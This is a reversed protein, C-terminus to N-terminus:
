TAIGLTHPTEVRRSESQRTLSNTPAQIRCLYLSLTLTHTRANVANDVHIIVCKNKIQQHLLHVNSNRDNRRRRRRNWHNSWFTVVRASLLIREVSRHPINMTNPEECVCM